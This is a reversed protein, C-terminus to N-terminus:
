ETGGKGNQLRELLFVVPKIGDICASLRTGPHILCDLAGVPRMMTVDRQVDAWAWSCFRDPKCAGTELVQGDAFTGCVDFARGECV